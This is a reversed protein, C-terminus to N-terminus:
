RKTVAGRQPASQRVLPQVIPADIPDLLRNVTATARTATAAIVRAAHLLLLLLVVVVVPPDALETLDPPVIVM